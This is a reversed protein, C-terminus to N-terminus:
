PRQGPFDLNIRRLGGRNQNVQNVWILAGRGMNHGSSTSIHLGHDRLPVWTGFPTMAYTKERAINTSGVSM